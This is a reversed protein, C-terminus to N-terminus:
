ARKLEKLLRPLDVAESESSKEKFPIYNRTSETKAITKVGHELIARNMVDEVIYQHKPICILADYVYGVYIEMANLRQIVDMM